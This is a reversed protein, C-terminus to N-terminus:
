SSQLLLIDVMKTEPSKIRRWFDTKKGSFYLGSVPFLTQNYTIIMDRVLNQIFRCEITVQIDLFDKSLVRAMVSIQTVAVPNLGM